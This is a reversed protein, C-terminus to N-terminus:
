SDALPMIAIQFKGTESPFSDQKGSGNEAIFYAYYTGPTDVDAAVPDYQVEGAAASTVTVNDSTETVKVTGSESEVMTFKLTLGSLDVVTNDPRKLTAAIAIRTDGVQRFQKQTTAM